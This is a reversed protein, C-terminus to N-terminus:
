RDGIQALQERLSTAERELADLKAREKAVVGHPAKSTFQRNGLKAASRDADALAADLRRRLRAMSAEVDIVGALPILIEIDPEVLLRACGAADEHGDPFSVTRAGTLRAIESAFARLQAQKSAPLIRLELEQGPPIQHDGRFQRVRTVVDQIAGIDWEPGRHEPHQEPWPAVSVSGEDGFRQWIEETVFPMMPHLIRLMRELVWALVSASDGREQDSGEYLRLKEMELAWDCYESWLFRHIAQTADSFRYANLSRDVEELCAEHRALLWRGVASLREEPPLKPPGGPHVSLVLRAANWLKNAFHRAAQVADEGFAIDQGGSALRALSFRVADAGHEAILSLPDVVNGLSKSMKRGMADRVLGHIFVSRFPIEGRLYLGSMIMRAVWLYLIEYGTVLVTTPYFFRLDETEDPWGLTSFPWLQSSFWTDLVDPDQELDGSGCETCVTPDEISAFEHGNPCYWVPIRHGWWLQRSINWDRLNDLWRAYDRKWKEPHFRIRGDEAAEKAPGTLRRVAVFWQKGM